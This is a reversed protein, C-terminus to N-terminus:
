EGLTKGMLYMAGTPQAVGGKPEITVAFASVGKKGALDIPQVKFYNEGGGTAGTAGAAGASISFVGASVPKSDKIAWLQYDKGEPLPPLHSVQLVAVRGTVDWIIKGYGVPNVALGDMLVVNVNRSALVTLIAQEQEVETRLATIREEKETIVGRQSEITGLLSRIYLGFGALMVALAAAYVIGLWVRGRGTASPEALPQPRVSEASLLEGTRRSTDSRALKTLGASFLIRERLEPPLTVPPLAAPLLASARLHGALERRCEPCGSRLHAEFEALEAGDLAGLAYAACQDLYKDDHQAM